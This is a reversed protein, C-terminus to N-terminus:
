SFENNLERETIRAFTSLAESEIKVVANSFYFRGKQGITVKFEGSSNKFVWPTTRGNGITNYVGTGYEPFSAYDVNVLITYEDKSRIIEVKNYLKGSDIIGMSLINKKVAERVDLSLQEAAATISNYAVKRVKEIFENYGDTLITVDMSFM